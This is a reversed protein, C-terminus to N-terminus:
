CAPAPRRVAEWWTRLKGKPELPSHKRLRMRAVAKVKGSEPRGQHSKSSPASHLWVGPYLWHVGAQQYTGQLGNGGEFLLADM